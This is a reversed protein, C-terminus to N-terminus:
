RFRAWAPRGSQLTHGRPRSSAALKMLCAFAWAPADAFLRRRGEALLTHGCSRLKGGYYAAHDATHGRIALNALQGDLQPLRIKEIRLSERVPVPDGFDVVGGATDRQLWRICDDDFARM